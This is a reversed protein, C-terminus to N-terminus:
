RKINEDNNLASFNLQKRMLVGMALPLHAELPAELFGQYERDDMDDVVGVLVNFTLTVRSMDMLTFMVLEELRGM